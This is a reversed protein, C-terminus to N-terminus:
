RQSLANTSFDEIAPDSAIYNKWITALNVTCGPSETQGALQYDDSHHAKILRAMSM